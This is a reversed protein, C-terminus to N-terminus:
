ETVVTSRFADSMVLGRVLKLVNFQNEAFSKALEEIDDNPGDYAGASTAYNVMRRAMCEGLKPHNRVLLSLDAPDAFPVGDLDGALSLEAGNDTPRFRGIGDFNEYALGIKDTINHCSACNPDELHVKIRDRLTPETGTPEPISTDVGAPPPPVIRCLLKQQVFMGRLTASTSVPHAWLALFSVHGLIGRRLSDEGFEYEGFGDRVPSRVNYIAALKRNIFTKRSTIVDRFDGSGDFIVDELVRLTEERASGGVEESIHPFLEPAKTLADLRDLEYLDIFFQRIGRLARPDELMREVEAALGEDTLIEGSKAKEMLAEDPATNWLFFSLRSALEYGDLSRREGTGVGVEPRFLFHPSQLIAAAAYELGGYFSDTVAAANGAIQVLRAVEEEDLPRRWARTGFEKVFEGACEADTTGSPSCTMWRGWLDERDMLQKALDYAATEYQEVGRTSISTSSAGAALLGANRSDPELRVPLNIDEGILDQVIQKYQTQTLRVLRAPQAELPARVSTPASQTEGCASLGFLSLIFFTYLTRKLM